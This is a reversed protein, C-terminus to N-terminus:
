NTPKLMMEGYDKNKVYLQVSVRIMDPKEKIHGTGTVTICRDM